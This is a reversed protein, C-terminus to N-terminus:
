ELVDIRVIQWVSRGFYVENFLEPREDFPYILFLPGKDRVTLAQGDIATAFIVDFDRLDQAPVDAAYDNLAVVRLRAGDAGVADLLASGLPGSFSHSGELWPTVATTTRQPLADLMAQDFQATGDANTHAIQGTVTLVVPGTPSPLDAATAPISPLCLFVALLIRSMM